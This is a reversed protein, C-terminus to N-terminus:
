MLDLTGKDMMIRSILRCVIENGVYLPLVACPNGFVKHGRQELQARLYNYNRVVQKRLRYGLHSRLIRLNALSTAAQVPNIANTFMYASSYYKCYEIVYNDTCAIFGINTSLCKSGTGVLIVNSRDKLNQVEWVGANTFFYVKAKIEWIDLIM